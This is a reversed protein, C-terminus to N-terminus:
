NSNLNWAGGAMGLVDELRPVGVGQFRADFWGGADLSAVREWAAQDVFGTGTTTRDLTVDHLVVLENDITMQVDFEIGHAGAQLACEFASMTNEPASKSAGRHGVIKM